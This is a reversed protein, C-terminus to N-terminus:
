REQRDLVEHPQSKGGLPTHEGREKVSREASALNRVM